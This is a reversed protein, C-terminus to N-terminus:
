DWWSMINRDMIKFLLLKARDERLRSIVVAIQKNTPNERDKLYSSKLARRVDNPYKDLFLHLDDKTDDFEMSYNVSNKVKEVRMKTEWYDHMEDTYSCDQIKQILRTCTRIKSAQKTSDVFRNTQEFRTAMNNLKFKLIEFIFDHDYDRDKWIIPFWRWLNKFGHSVYRHFHKADWKFWRYVKWYWKSYDKNKMTKIIM